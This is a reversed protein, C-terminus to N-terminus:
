VEDACTTFAECTESATCADFAAIAADGGVELDKSCQVACEVYTSTMSEKFEDLEEPALEVEEEEAGCIIARTCFADCTPNIGPSPGAADGYDTAVWTDLCHLMGACSVHDLCGILEARAQSERPTAECQLRCTEELESRRADDALCEPDLEHEAPPAAEEVETEAETEGEDREGENSRRLKSKRPRTTQSECVKAIACASAQSCLNACSREGVPAVAALWPRATPGSVCGFYANCSDLTLCDRLALASRQDGFETCASDCERAVRDAIMTRDGNVESGLEPVCRVLRDCSSSCVEPADVEEVPTEDVSGEPETSEGQQRRCAGASTIAALVAPALAFLAASRALARPRAPPSTAHGARPLRSRPHGNLPPM